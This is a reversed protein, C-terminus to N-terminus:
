SVSVAPREPENRWDEITAGGLVRDDQWYVVAQGPAPAWQPAAFTVRVRDGLPEVTAAAGRSQSRVTARVLAPGSPPVGDTWSASSGEIIRGSAEARTGLVVTNSGVDLRVVFRREGLALGLGKRQGITLGFLGDHRGLVHGATDVVPGPRFLEPRRQRLFAVHDDGPVFCIEQSEPKEAAALGFRRAQERVQPKTLEGVPFLLRSMQEQGLGYLFFSQDKREDAGCRLERRGDDARRLRAHHGTAVADAEVSRARELLLGFKLHENCRICPNPTRGAAYEDCFDRVVAREFDASFDWAYHPIGLAAAARQADRVAGSGCCARTGAPASDAFLFMTVGVIDHGAEKLLAAAVTSDVGGSM